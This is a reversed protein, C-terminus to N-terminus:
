AVTSPWPSPSRRCRATVVAEHATATCASRARVTCLMSLPRKFKPSHKLRAATSTTPKTRTSRPAEVTPPAVAATSSTSRSSPGTFWTSNTTSVRWDASAERFRMTPTTM